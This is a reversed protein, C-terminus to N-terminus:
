DKNGRFGACYAGPEISKLIEFFEWIMLSM